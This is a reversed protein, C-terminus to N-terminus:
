DADADLISAKVVRVKAKWSQRLWTAKLSAERERTFWEGRGPEDERIVLWVTRRKGIKRVVSM